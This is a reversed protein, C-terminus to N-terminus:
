YTFNVTHVLDRKCIITDTLESRKKNRALEWHIKTMKGAYVRTRVTANIYGGIWRLGSGPILVVPTDTLGHNDIEYPYLTRFNVRDSEWSLYLTDLFSPYTIKEIKINLSALRSLPFILRKAIGHLQYISMKRTYAAYNTDGVIHFNYYRVGKLRKLTYNFIGSSDTAFQGIDVPVFENNIELLGRVIVERGPIHRMTEDDIIKGKMVLRGGTSVCGYTLVGIALAVYIHFKMCFLIISKQSKYLPLIFKKTIRQKEEYNM